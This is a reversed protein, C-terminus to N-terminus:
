ESISVENVRVLVVRDRPSVPLQQAHRHGGKDAEEEQRQDEQGEPDSRQSEAHQQAPVAAPPQPLQPIQCQQDRPEQHRGHGHASSSRSWSSM